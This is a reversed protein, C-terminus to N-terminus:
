VEYGEGESSEGDSTLVVFWEGSKIARTAVLGLMGEEEEEEAVEEGGGEGEGDGGMALEQVMCNAVSADTSEPLEVDPMEDATIIVTGEEIDHPAYAGERNTLPPPLTVGDCGSGSGSGATSPAAGGIVFDRAASVSTLAFRAAAAALATSSSTATAAVTPLETSHWWERTNLAIIDGQELVVRFSPTEAAIATSGDGATARWRDWLADTPRLLWVKSGALQVHWSGDHTVDDTHEKRGRLPATGGANSGFFLWVPLAHHVPVAESVSGASPTTELLYEPTPSPLSAAVHAVADPDTQVIFSAYFPPQAATLSAAVGLLAAPTVDNAASRRPRKAAPEAGRQTPPPPREISWSSAVVTPWRSHLEQLMAASGPGGWWPSASTSEHPFANRVVVLQTRRFANWFAAGDPAESFEFIKM